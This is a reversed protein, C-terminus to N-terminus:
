CKARLAFKRYIDRTYGARVSMLVSRVLEGDNGVDAMVNWISVGDNGIDPTVNCVSGCNDRINIVVLQFAALIHITSILQYVGNTNKRDHLSQTKGSSLNM